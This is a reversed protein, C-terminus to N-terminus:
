DSYCIVRLNVTVKIRTCLSIVFIQSKRRLRSCKTTTTLVIYNDCASNSLLGTTVVPVFNSAKYKLLFIMQAANCKIDEYQRFM